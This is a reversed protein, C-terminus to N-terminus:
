DPGQAQREYEKAFEQKGDYFASVARGHTTYKNHYREKERFVYNTIILPSSILAKRGNTKFPSDELTTLDGFKPWRLPQRHGKVNFGVVIALVSYAFIGIWGQYPCHNL